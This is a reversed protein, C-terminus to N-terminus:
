RRGPMAWLGQLGHGGQFNTAEGLFKKRRNENGFHFGSRFSKKAKIMFPSGRELFEHENNNNNNDNNDIEEIDNWYSSSIPWPDPIFRTRAWCSVFLQLCFLIYRM